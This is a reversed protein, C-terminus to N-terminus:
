LDLEQSILDQIYSINQHEGYVSQHYICGKYIYIHIYKFFTKSSDVRDVNFSRYRAYYTAHGVCTFM